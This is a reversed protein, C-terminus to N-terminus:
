WDGGPASPEGEASYVGHEELTWLTIGVTYAIHEIDNLNFSKAGPNVEEEIEELWQKTEPWMPYYRTINSNLRNVILM